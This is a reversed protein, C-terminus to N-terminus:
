GDVWFCCDHMLADGDVNPLSTDLHALSAPFDVAQFMAGLGIAMHWTVLGDRFSIVGVVGEETLCTSALMHGPFHEYIRFGCDNIFNTSADVALEEM